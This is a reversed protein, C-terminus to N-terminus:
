ILEHESLQTQPLYMIPRREKQQWVSLLETVRPIPYVSRAWIAEGTYDEGVPHDPEIVVTTADKQYQIPYIYGQIHIDGRIVDTPWTGSTLVAEHNSETYVIEIAEQPSTTINICRNYYKWKHRTPLERLAAQVSRAAKRESRYDNDYTNERELVRYLADSFTLIPEDADFGVYQSVM